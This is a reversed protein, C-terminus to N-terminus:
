YGGQHVKHTSDVTSYIRRHKFMDYLIRHESATLSRSWGIVTDIKGKYYLPTTTNAIKGIITSNGGNLTNSSASLSKHFTGNIYMELTSGIRQVGIYLTGSYSSDSTLQYANTNDDISFIVQNTTDKLFIGFGFNSIMNGVTSFITRWSGTTTYDRLVCFVCFDGSTDIPDVTCTIYNNNGSFSYSNNWGNFRDVVKTAGTVTISTITGMLDTVGNNFEIYCKCNNFLSPFLEKIATSSVPVICVSQSNSTVGILSTSISFVYNILTKDTNNTVNIKYYTSRDEVTVTLANLYYKRVRVWNTLSGFNNGLTTKLGRIYIPLNGTPIYTSNTISGQLNYDVFFYETTSTRWICYTYYASTRAEDNLYGLTGNKSSAERDMSGTLEWKIDNTGRDGFGIDIEYENGRYFRFEVIYDLGFTAKSSVYEEDTGYIQLYDAPSGTIAPSGGTNWINTDLSTFHDFFDFVKTGDPSYGSVNTLYYTNTGYPEFNGRIWLSNAATEIFYPLM